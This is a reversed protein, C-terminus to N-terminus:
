SEGKEVVMDRLRAVRWFVRRCRQLLALRNHRREVNEDMVLVEAFFRDLPAVLDEMAVFAEEYRKEAVAETVRRRVETLSTSLEIEAEEVLLSEQLEYEAAGQVMNSIRKAALVLSRFEAEGRVKQLARLRDVVHPLSKSGVAMTAEIEDFAMGMQGLFHRSRDDLFSQLATLTTQADSALREGYLLVARAAVLDLDLEMRCETLIRLMGQVLRRLALPDHKGKPLQGLGCFGVVTDLRDAVALLCAARSEPIPHRPSAPRYHEAIAQWVAAVYGQERAYIGGMTGRLSPYERVMDTGLDSKALTAAQRAAEAEDDWGLERAILSVLAEVRQAKDALSGLGPHFAMQELRDSREALTIQRDADYYFRADLLRGALAREHGRQVRGDTDEPRDMATIFFPLLDQRSRVPFARQQDILTALLVEEPLDLFAPDFSGHVVGPVECRDALIDLLEDHTVIEGGLEQARATLGEQLKARRAKWSVEIGRRGLGERYDGFNRTVFPQPSLRPHGVTEHGAEVGDYSCALLEGDLMVMLGTLPRFWRRDRHWRGRTEWRMEGLLRPLLSELVEAVPRGAIRRVVGLYTGRETKIEQLDKPEVGLREVFGHLAETAKEGDFAESLPPGLHQEQRDPEAAPLGRCCLTLRRPTVGTLIEQPALGRGMLEEFLRGALQQLTPRLKGQPMEQCRLEFLLEM